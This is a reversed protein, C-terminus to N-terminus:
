RRWGAGQQIHFRAQLLQAALRVGARQLLVDDVPQAGSFSQGTGAARSALSLYSPDAGPAHVVLVLGGCNGKSSVQKQDEKMKVLYKRQKVQSIYIIHRM